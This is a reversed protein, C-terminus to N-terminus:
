YCRTVLDLQQINNLLVRIKCIFDVLQNIIFFQCQELVICSFFRTVFSVWLNHQLNQYCPICFVHRCPPVVQDETLVGCQTCQWMVDRFIPFKVDLDCRTVLSHNNNFLFTFVFGPDFRMFSLSYFTTPYYFLWHPSYLSVDHERGLRPGASGATDVRLTPHYDRETVAPSNRDGVGSCYLYCM